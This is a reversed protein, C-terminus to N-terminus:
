QDALAAAPTVAIREVVTSAQQPPPDSNSRKTSSRASPLSRRASNTALDTGDTAPIGPQQLGALSQRTRRALGIGQAASRDRRFASGAMIGTGMKPSGFIVLQTPRLKLGAKEAEGSHDIRAFVTVGKSKLVAELRDLTEAVSYRSPKSVIGNDAALPTTSLLMALVGLLLTKM